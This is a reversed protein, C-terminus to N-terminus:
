ASPTSGKFTYDNPLAAQPDSSTFRVTCTYNTDITGNPSLVTVTATTTSPLGSITM